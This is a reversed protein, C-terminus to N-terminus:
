PKDPKKDDPKKETPKEGPKPTPQAPDKAPPPALPPAAKPDAPKPDGAKTDKPKDPPPAPLKPQEEPKKDELKKDKDGGPPPALPTSPESGKGPVLKPTPEGARPELPPYTPLPPPESKVYRKNLDEYFQQIKQKNERIDKAREAAEKGQPTNAHEQAAREYLELARDLNGRYESANDAKPIGVLAEEAKAAALLSERQLLAIGKSEDILENYLTRAREISTIATIRKQETPLNNLGENLLVRALAVKAAHGVNTGRNAEVIGQLEDANNAQEIQKWVSARNKLSSENYYKWAFFLVAILVLAGLIVWFTSSTRTEGTGKWWHHLREALENKELQKRHDAKM